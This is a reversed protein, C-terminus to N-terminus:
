SVPSLGCWLRLHCRPIVTTLPGSCLRQSRFIGFQRCPCHHSSKCSHDPSQRWPCSLQGPLSRDRGSPSEQGQLHVPLCFLCLRADATSLIVCEVWITVTKNHTHQTQFSTHKRNTSSPILSMKPRLLSLSIHLLHVTINKEKTLFHIDTNTRKPCKTFTNQKNCNFSLSSTFCWLSAAPVCVYLPILVSNLGPSAKKCALNLLYIKLM